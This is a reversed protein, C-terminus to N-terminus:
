ANTEFNEILVNSYKAMNSDTYIFFKVYNYIGEKYTLTVYGSGETSEDPEGYISKVYEPTISESLKFGGPLEFDVDDQVAIEISGIECESAKKATSGPNWFQVSLSKGDANKPYIGITYTNMGVEKDEEATISYGLAQFESYDCPITYIKSKIRDYRRIKYLM